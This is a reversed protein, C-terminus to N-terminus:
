DLPNTQGQQRVFTTLVSAMRRTYGKPDTRKFYAIVDEDLRMTVTPKPTPRTWDVDAMDPIDSYDIEEDKTADYRAKAENTLKPPKKPDLTFTKRSM